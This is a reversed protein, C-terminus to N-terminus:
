GVVANNLFDSVAASHDERNEFVVMPQIANIAADIYDIKSDSDQTEKKPIITGDVRRNVVVNSVMWTAVPNGDHKLRSPGAKIRAEFDKAPDTVNKAQKHLIKAIQDEEARDVNLRSAMAQAAAFQDFVMARLGYRKDWDRIQKEIINHDVWDGPTTSLHGAAFWMQYPAAGKGEARGHGKLANEPLWFLPKLLLTQGRMAALVLANLDDKDALDAGAYCDLGDFDEWSLDLDTCMKWREVSLWARSAGLWMNLRKTKFEGDSGAKAETALQRMSDLSPTIGLMPNAKIWVKEDFPDDGVTREDDYDEAEDLTFIIGFMHDAELAGELVKTVKIREGYCVGGLSYGATTIIWMLPNKRSGMSSRIVDFLGRDKHAHLEDLIALHPNWGDQTKGKSNITQIYGSNKECFVSRAFTELNFAERLDATQDVMIKAPNFVKHAQENTTAGIIIEPGVEGECTLCYLAVAATLTSKAGKRAMEIYVYNFRRGGDTKRRWGFISCLIFIQAPELHIDRTDWTGAVHPLKEIFDCIDNAHWASFEYRWSAKKLDALHRQAALRVWKCHKKHKTDNVAEVAFSFAIGIYDKISNNQVTVSSATKM